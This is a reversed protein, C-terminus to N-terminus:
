RPHEATVPDKPLGNTDRPSHHRRGAVPGSAQTSHEAVARTIPSLMTMRGSPNVARPPTSTSRTQRLTALDDHVAWHEAAKGDRFRLLHVMPTAVPRDTPGIGMLTGTHRGTLTCHIAVTDDDALVHHIDFRLDCFVTNLWGITAALGEIGHAEGPRASHDLSDTHMVQPLASIDATPIIEEYIRRATARIGDLDEPM